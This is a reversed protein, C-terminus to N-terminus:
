NSITIMRPILTGQEGDPWRFYINKFIVIDNQKLQQFDNRIEDSLKNGINLRTTFKCTDSSVICVTFSDIHYRVDIDFGELEARVYLQNALEVKSVKERGSGIKFIPLPFYKVRFDNSGIKKVKGNVKAYLTITAKGPTGASYIYSGYSKSVKGNDVKVIIDKLSYGEVAITLPNDVGIYFVNMRDLGIAFNQSSVQYYSIALAFIFVVKKMKLFQSAAFPQLWRAPM